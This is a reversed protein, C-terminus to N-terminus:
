DAVFLWFKTFMPEELVGNNRQINPNSNHKSNTSDYKAQYRPFALYTLTPGVATYFGHQLFRHLQFATDIGILVALSVSNLSNPEYSNVAVLVTPLMTTALSATHVM